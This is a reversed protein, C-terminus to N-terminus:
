WRAGVILVGVVALVFAVVAVIDRARAPLFGSPSPSRTSSSRGRAVERHHEKYWDRDQMGM